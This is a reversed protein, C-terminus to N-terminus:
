ARPSERVPGFIGLGILRQSSPPTRPRDLAASRRENMHMGVDHLLNAEDAVSGIPKGKVIRHMAEEQRVTGIRCPVCQGCSEDRFFAIRLAIDKMDVTDDFVMVVGSGLTAKAARVGELTLPM